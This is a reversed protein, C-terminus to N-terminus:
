TYESRNRALLERLAADAAIDSPWGYAAAVAHDLRTHADTLWQPRTNYLNTLTRKKVTGRQAQM